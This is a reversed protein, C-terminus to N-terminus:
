VKQRTQKKIWFLKYWNKQTIGPRTALYIVVPYNEFFMQSITQYAIVTRTWDFCIKKATAFKLM